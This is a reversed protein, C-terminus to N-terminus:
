FLEINNQDAGNIQMEYYAMLEEWTGNPMSNLFWNLVTRESEMTYVSNLMAIQIKTLAPLPLNYTEGAMSLLANITERLTRKITPTNVFLTNEFGNLDSFGEFSERLEILLMKITTISRLLDLEITMSQFVHLHFFSDKFDGALNTHLMRDHTLILHQVRQSFVDMYQLGAMIVEMKDEVNSSMSSHISNLKKNKLYCKKFLNNVAGFDTEAIAIGNTLQTNLKELFQMRTNTM